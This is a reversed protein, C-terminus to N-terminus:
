KFYIEILRFLPSRIPAQMVNMAISRNLYMYISEYADLKYPQNIAKKIVVNNTNWDKHDYENAHLAVASKPHTENKRISAEHEGYRVEISRKTQGIYKQECENCSIEYIGSKKLPDTKDKLNVLLNQLKGNSSHVIEMNHKKFVSKLKNTIEPIYPLSVRKLPEKEFSLTTLNRKHIKRSHLAVLKDIMLETYGNILAIYKIYKLEVMYDKINLPLRCLRFVMSHFAAKKHSTPCHSDAPIYRPKNSPKRYVSFVISGDDKRNIRVDLFPLSSKQETEITFKVTPWQTNLIDMIKEKENKNIIAAVDDVYRFWVRPITGKEKMNMEFHSMFLNALFPSLANGMCTGHTIQYFSNDFQCINLEMCLKTLELLLSKKQDCLEHEDLWKELIILTDPIPISPFLSEVDFSVLIENEEIREEKM